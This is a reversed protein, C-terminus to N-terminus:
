AEMGGMGNMGGNGSGYKKMPYIDKETGSEVDIDQQVDITVGLKFTPAHPANNNFSKVGSQWQTGRSGHLEEAIRDKAGIVHLLNLTYLSPLILWFANNVGSVYVNAPDLTSGLIAGVTASFATYCGTEVGLRILKKLASDTEKNYGAVKKSLLYCLTASNAVDVFASMFLWVASGKVYLSGAAPSPNLIDILDVSTVLISGGLATAIVLGMFAMYAKGWIRGGILLASRRAFYAQVLVGSLAITLPQICEVLTYNWVGETTRDQSTTFKWTLQLDLATNAFNLLVVALLFAKGGITDRAFRGRSVYQWFLGIVLGTLLIQLQWGALLPGLAGVVVREPALMGPVDADNTTSM